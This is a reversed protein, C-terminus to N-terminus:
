DILLGIIIIPNFNITIPLTLLSIQQNILKLNLQNKVLIFNLKLLQFPNVKSLLLLNDLSINHAELLIHNVKVILFNQDLFLHSRM